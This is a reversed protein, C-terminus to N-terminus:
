FTRPYPAARRCKDSTWILAQFLSVIASLPLVPGEFQPVELGTGRTPQGEAWKRVDRYITINKM